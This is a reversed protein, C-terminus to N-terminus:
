KDHSQVISTEGGQLDSATQESPDTTSPEHLRAKLLLESLRTSAQNLIGDAGIDAKVEAFRRDKIKQFIEAAIRHFDNHANCIKRQRKVSMLRHGENDFWNGFQCLRSDAVATADFSAKGNLYDWFRKHWASHAMLASDIEFKMGM